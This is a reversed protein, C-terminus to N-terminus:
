VVPFAVSRVEVPEGSVDIYIYIYVHLSYIQVYMGTTVDNLEWRNWGVGVMRKLAEPLGVLAMSDEFTLDFGRATPGSFKHDVFNDFSEEWLFRWLFKQSAAPKRRFTPIFFRYFFFTWWITTVDGIHFFLMTEWLEIDM